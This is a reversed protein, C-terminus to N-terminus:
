LRVKLVSTRCITGWEGRRKMLQVQEEDLKIIAGYPDSDGDIGIVFCNSLSSVQFDNGIGTMPSGAPIIYRFQDFLDFVEKETLPNSLAKRYRWKHTGLWLAYRGLRNEFLNGDSDKLAYTLKFRTKAALQDGGFYEFM